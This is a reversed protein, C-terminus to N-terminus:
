HTRNKTNTFLPKIFQSIKFNMVSEYSHSPSSPNSQVEGGDAPVMFYCFIHGCSTIKSNLISLLTAAAVAKSRVGVELQILPSNFLPEPYIL